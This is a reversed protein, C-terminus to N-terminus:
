SNIVLNLLYTRDEGNVKIHSLFVGARADFEVYDARASEQLDAYVVNGNQIAYIYVNPSVSYVDAVIEAMGDGDIDVENISMAYTSCLLEYSDDTKKVFYYYATGLAASNGKIKYVNEHDLVNNLIEANGFDLSEESEINDLPHFSPTVEMAENIENKNQQKGFLSDKYVMSISILIVLILIAILLSRKKRFLIFDPQGVNNEVKM